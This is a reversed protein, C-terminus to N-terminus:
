KGGGEVQFLDDSANAEPAKPKRGAKMPRLLRHLREELQKVFSESGSPRGTCTNRRITEVVSEDGPMALWESWDEVPGPFPRTEALLASAERMVHARASSWAYDEARASLGARVPNREVYRVAEWLHSGDLATSYFRNAWLHGTWGFRQNVSRSYRMHSFGIARALSHSEQGVVILHVHNTMLCYAWVEMGYLKSHQALLALYRERDANEFFVDSRHNGRHTVHYPMGPAIVRAIRAM